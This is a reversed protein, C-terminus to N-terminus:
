NILFIDQFCKVSQDHHPQPAWDDFELAYYDEKKNMYLCSMFLEEMYLNKNETLVNYLLTEFNNCFKLYLLPKGGFLGGIIHRADDYYRTYYQSSLTNSWKFTTNNKSLLLVQDNSTLNNLHSLFNSNFLSVKYHDEQYRYRSSFLGGHSLGADIWYVRDYSHINEVMDGWFFKNYQIEYCRDSTKREELDKKSHILDYYKTNKLDFIKFELLNFNISNKDYFFSKLSNIEESSTFCVVKTPQLNLINLLSHRYHESRSPRGGFETGYLNNYICTILLTNM